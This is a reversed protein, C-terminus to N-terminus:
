AGGESRCLQARHLICAKMMSSKNNDRRRLWFVIQGPRWSQPKWASRSGPRQLPRHLNQLWTTYHGGGVGYSSGASISSSLPIVAVCLSYIALVLKNRVGSLTSGGARRVHARSRVENKKTRQTVPPLSAFRKETPTSSCLSPHITLSSQHFSPGLQLLSLSLITTERQSEHILTWRAYIGERCPSRWTVDKTLLNLRRRWRAM